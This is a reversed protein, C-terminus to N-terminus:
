AVSERDETAEKYRTIVSKVFHSSIKVGLDNKFGKQNCARAIEGLTLGERDREIIFTKCETNVALGSKIDQQYKAKNYEKLEKFESFEIEEIIFSNNKIGLKYFKPEPNNFSTDFIYFDKSPYLSSIYKCDHSQLYFVAGSKIITKLDKRQKITYNHRLNNNDKVSLVTNKILDKLM